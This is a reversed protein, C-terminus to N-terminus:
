LWIACQFNFGCGGYVFSSHLRNWKKRSMQNANCHTLLNIKISAPFNYEPFM